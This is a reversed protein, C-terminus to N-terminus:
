LIFECFYKFSRCHCSIQDVTIEDTALLQVFFKATAGDMFHCNSMFYIVIDELKFKESLKLKLDKLIERILVVYMCDTVTGLQLAMVM